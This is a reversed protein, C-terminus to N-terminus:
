EAAEQEIDAYGSMMAKYHATRTHGLTGLYAHILIYNVFAIFAIVHVTDIVRIGGFFDIQSQFRKVDWLLVGTYIQVPFLLMMVFHYITSQLPNFKNHVSPTFPEPDGRFIGFAYYMVQRFSGVLYEKINFKTHYSRIRASAIYLALWLLFSAILVFGVFNHILVGTRYSVVDILGIYRIQLGSLIMVVFGLANTWHWIRIPLPHIYIRM